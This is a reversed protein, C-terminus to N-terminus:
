RGGVASELAAWMRAKVLHERGPISSPLVLEPRSSGSKRFEYILATCIHDRSLPRRKLHASLMVNGKQVLAAAADVDVAAGETPSFPIDTVTMIILRYHGPDAFLLRKMYTILSFGAGEETMLWRGDTEPAGDAGIKELQTVIAFGGPIDFYSKQYYNAADLAETIRRSIDGLTNAGDADRVLADPIVDWASAKPPPWPFTGPPSPAAEANSEPVPASGTGAVRSRPKEAKSVTTEPQKRAQIPSRAVPAAVPAPPLSTVAPTDAPQPAAPLPEPVPRADTGTEAHSGPAGAPGTRAQPDGDAVVEKLGSGFKSRDPALQVALLQVALAILLALGIALCVARRM